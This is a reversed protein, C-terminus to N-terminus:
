DIIFAELGRRALIRWDGDDDGGGGDGGGDRCGVSGDESARASPCALRAALLAATVLETAVTSEPQTCITSIAGM